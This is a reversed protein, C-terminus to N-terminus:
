LDWAVVSIPFAPRGTGRVVIWFLIIFTYTCDTDVVHELGKVSEEVSIAMGKKYM